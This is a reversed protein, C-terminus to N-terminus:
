THRCKVVFCTSLSATYTIFLSCIKLSKCSNKVKPLEVPAFHTSSNYVTPLFNTSFLSKAYKIAILINLKYKM